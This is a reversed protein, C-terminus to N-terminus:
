SRPQYNCNDSEAALGGRM